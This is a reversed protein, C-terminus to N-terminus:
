ALGRPSFTLEFDEWGNSHLEPPLRLPTCRMVAVIAARAMEGAFPQGAEGVVSQRVIEPPAVLMGDVAYRVRLVTVIQRAERPVRPGRYCGRVQEAAMAVVQRYPAPDPREAVPASLPATSACGALLGLPLAIGGRLTM